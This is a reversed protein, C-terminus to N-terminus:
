SSRPIQLSFHYELRRGRLKGALRRNNKCLHRDTGSMGGKSEGGSVDPKQKDEDKYISELGILQGDTIPEPFNGQPSSISM